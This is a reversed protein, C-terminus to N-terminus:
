SHEGEARLLEEDAEYSEWSRGERLAREARRVRDRLSQNDRVLRAHGAGTTM